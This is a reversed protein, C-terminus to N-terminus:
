WYRYVEHTGFDLLDIVTDLRAGLNLALNKSPENEADIYSVLSPLKLEEMAYKKVAQGSEMGYGKKQFDPLLWYGLEPEPWPDSNWLGITGIVEKSSKEELALYSYGHLEYHGIYTAMLRWAEEKTMIGGVFRATKETSFYEAFIPYDALKWQRFLLRETELAIM